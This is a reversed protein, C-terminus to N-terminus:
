RAIVRLERPDFQQDVDPLLVSHQPNPIEPQNIRFAQQRKLAM